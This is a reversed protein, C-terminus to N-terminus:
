IYRSKVNWRCTGLGDGRMHVFIDDVGLDFFGDVFTISMKFVGAFMLYRSDKANLQFELMWREKYALRRRVANVYSVTYDDDDDDSLCDLFDINTKLFNIM